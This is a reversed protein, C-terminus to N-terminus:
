GDGICSLIVKFVRNPPYLGVNEIRSSSYFRVERDCTGAARCYGSVGSEPSVVGFADNIVLYLCKFILKM